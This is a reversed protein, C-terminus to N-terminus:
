AFKAGRGPLGHKIANEVLTLLAAPPIRNGRLAPSVEIEYRLRAGM